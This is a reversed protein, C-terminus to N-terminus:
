VQKPGHASDELHKVDSATGSPGSNYAKGDEVQLRTLILAGCLCLVLDKSHAAMAWSLGLTQRCSGKKRLTSM